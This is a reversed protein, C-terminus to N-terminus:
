YNSLDGIRWEKSLQYYEQTYQHNYDFSEPKHTQWKTNRSTYIYLFGGCDEWEMMVLYEGENLQVTTASRTTRIEQSDQGRCRHSVGSLAPCSIGGNVSQSLGKSPAWQLGKTRLYQVMYHKSSNRWDWYNWTATHNKPYGQAILGMFCSSSGPGTCQSDPIRSITTQHSIDVLHWLSLGLTFVYMNSPCLLHGCRCATQGKAERTSIPPGQKVGM